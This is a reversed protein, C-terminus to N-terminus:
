EKARYGLVKPANVKLSMQECRVSLFPQALGIGYFPSELPVISNSGVFGLRSEMEFSFSKLDSNM